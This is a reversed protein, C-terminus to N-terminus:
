KLAWKQNAVAGGWLNLIAGLVFLIIQGRAVWEVSVGADLLLGWVPSGIGLATTASLLVPTIMGMWGWFRKSKWFAKTM